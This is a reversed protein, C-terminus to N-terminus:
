DEYILRSGKWTSGRRAVGYIDIKVKDYKYFKPMQVGKFTFGNGSGTRFKIGFGAQWDFVKEIKKSGTKRQSTNVYNVVVKQSTLGVLAIEKPMPQGLKQLVSKAQNWVNEWFYKNLKDASLNYEFIGYVPLNVVIELPTTFPLNPLSNGYTSSIYQAQSNYARGNYIFMQPNVNQIQPIPVNYEFYAQKIGLAIEDTSRTWWVGYWSKKQHKVTIGISKYLLYDQNWYKTKVRYKSSFKDICIASPGFIVDLTGSRSECEPLNKVFNDLGSLVNNSGSSGGGSSGGGGSSCDDIPQIYRMIRDDLRRLGGERLAYECPSVRYNRSTQSSKSASENDSNNALYDNLHGLDSKHVFFLGKDTYKYISDAVQIEGKDNIFSAYEDDGILDELDDLDNETQENTKALSKNEAKRNAFKQVLVENDQEIIPRLSYFDEDYLEALEKAAFSRSKEKFEDVKRNLFDKNSFHLRGEEVKVFQIPKTSTTEEQFVEEDQCSHLFALSM